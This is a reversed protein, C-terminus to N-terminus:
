FFFSTGDKFPWLPWLKQGVSALLLRCQVEQYAQNFSLFCFNQFNNKGPNIEVQFNSNEGGVGGRYITIKDNFYADWPM